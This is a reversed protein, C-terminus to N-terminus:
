RRITLNSTSEAGRSSKVRVTGTRLASTARYAWAGAADTTVTGLQVGGVTITMVVGTKAPLDTGEIRWQSKSTRFEALSIAVTEPLDITVTVTGTVDHGHGDSVTYTLTQPDGGTVPATYSIKNGSVAANGVPSASVNNVNTITLADGDADSDNALADILVTAGAGVAASDAAVVPPLNGDSINFSVHAINSVNGGTDDTLYYSFSDQGNLVDRQTYTVTNDANVVVSGHVPKTVLRVKVPIGIPNGMAATDNALVDIPALANCGPDDNTLLGTTTLAGSTATVILEGKGGRNSRVIVKAPPVPPELIATLAGDSALQGLEKGDSGQAFLDPKGGSGSGSKDSSEAEVHLEHTASDYIAQKVSVQDVLSVPIVRGSVELLDSVYVSDPVHNSDLVIQGYYYGPKDPNHTLSLGPMGNGFIKLQPDPQGLGKVAKVNVDLQTVAGDASRSYTSKEININSPLPDTHVRGMLTFQNSQVFDNGAGDLNSGVPGDIRFFNTNFPSGTVTSAVAPDAIYSKGEVTVFQAPEGGEVASPRLFPGIHGNAACTFDLGCLVGFDDTFFVREGAVAEVEKTGFPHTIVYTGDVPAVFRFRIRGFVVQDGPIPEENAFAAELALVLIANNGGALAVSSDAAFWFAEGPFNHPFSIVQAPNPVDAPLLLCLGQNLETGPSPLCLDLALGNRDQYYTPFNGTAASVPGAQYLDANAEFGSLALAMALILDKKKM